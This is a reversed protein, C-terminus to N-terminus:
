ADNIGLMIASVDDHDGTGHTGDSYSYQNTMKTHIIIPSHYNSSAYADVGRILM